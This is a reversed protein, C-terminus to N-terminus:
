EQSIESFELRTRHIRVRGVSVGLAAVIEDPRGTAGERSTMRTFFRQFGEDDNPLEHIELILPRLDYTKEKHTRILNESILLSELDQHLNPLPDLLTIIYESSELEKQLKAKNLPVKYLDCINIGPPLVPNLKTKIDSIKYDGELLVDLIEGASTFGLPLASVLNIKPHPKFGQTYALTLGARRFTREWTRLLDLHSTFRMQETKAFILNLRILNLAM